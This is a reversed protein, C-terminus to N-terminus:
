LQMPLAKQDSLSAKSHYMLLRPCHNHQADLLGGSDARLEEEVKSVLTDFVSDLSVDKHILQVYPNKQEPDKALWRNLCGPENCIFHIQFPFPHIQM